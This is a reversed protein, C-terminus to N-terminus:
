VIDSIFFKYFYKYFFLLLICLSFFIFIVYLQLFKVTCGVSIFNLNIKSNYFINQIFIEEWINLVYRIINTAHGKINEYGNEQTYTTFYIDNYLYIKTINTYQISKALWVYEYVSYFNKIILILLLAHLIFINKNKFFFIGLVFYFINNYYVLKTSFYVQKFFIKQFNGIIVM